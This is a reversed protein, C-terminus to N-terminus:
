SCAGPSKGIKDNIDSKSGHIRYHEKTPPGDCLREENTDHPPMTGTNGSKWKIPEPADEDTIPDSDAQHYFFEHNSKFIFM